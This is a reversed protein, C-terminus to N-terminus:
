FGCASKNCGQHTDTRCLTATLCFLLWLFFRKIWRFASILCTKGWSSPEMRSLNTCFGTPDSIGNLCHTNWDGVYKLAKSCHVASSILHPSIQAHIQASTQNHSIWMYFECPWALYLLAESTLSILCTDTNHTPGSRCVQVQVETFILVGNHRFLFFLFLCIQVQLLM